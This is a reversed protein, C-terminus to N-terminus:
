SGNNVYDRAADAPALRDSVVRGDNGYPSWYDCQGDEGLGVRVGAATLDVLPLSHHRAPAVTAMSVGLEAFEEIM